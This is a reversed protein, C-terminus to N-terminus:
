DFESKMRNSITPKWMQTQVTQEAETDPRPYCHGIFRLLMHGTVSSRSTVWLVRPIVSFLTILLFTGNYLFSSPSSSLNIEAYLYSLYLKIWSGLPGNFFGKKGFNSASSDLISALQSFSQFNKHPQVLKDIYIVADRGLYKWIAKRYDRM